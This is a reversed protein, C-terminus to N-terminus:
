RLDHIEKEHSGGKRIQFLLAIYRVNKWFFLEKNISSISSCMITRYLSCTLMIISFVHVKNELSIYLIGYINYFRGCMPM